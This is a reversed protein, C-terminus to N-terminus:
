LSQLREGLSLQARTLNALYVAMLLDQLSNNFMQEFQRPEVKPLGAVAETLFRGLKADM